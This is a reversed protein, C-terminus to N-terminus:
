NPYKCNPIDIVKCREKWLDIQSQKFYNYMTNWDYNSCTSLSQAPRYCKGKGFMWGGLCSNERKANVTNFCYNNANWSWTSNYFTGKYINNDRSFEYKGLSGIADKVTTFGENINLQTLWFEAFFRFQSALNNPDKENPYIINEMQGDWEIFNEIYNNQNIINDEWNSKGGTLYFDPILTNQSSSFFYKYIFWIAIGLIIIIITIIIFM